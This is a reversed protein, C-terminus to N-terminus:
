QGSMVRAKSHLIQEYERMMGLAAKAIKFPDREGVDILVNIYSRLKEPGSAKEDPTLQPVVQFDHWALEYARRQIDGIFWSTETVTAGTTQRLLDAQQGTERRRMSLIDDRASKVPSM